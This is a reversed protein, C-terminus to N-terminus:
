EAITRFLVRWRGEDKKMQYRVRNPQNEVEQFVVGSGLAVSRIDWLEVTTVYANAHGWVRVDEVTVNRFHPELARGQAAFEEIRKHIRAIEKDAVWDRLLLPDRSRYSEALVPLYEELMRTIEERAQIERSEESTCAVSSLLLLIAAVTAGYVRM